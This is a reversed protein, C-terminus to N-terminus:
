LGDSGWDRVDHKVLAYSITRDALADREDRGYGEDLLQTSLSNGKVLRRRRCGIM